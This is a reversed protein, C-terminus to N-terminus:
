PWDNKYCCRLTRTDGYVDGKNDFLVGIMYESRNPCIGLIENGPTLVVHFVRYRRWDPMMNYLKATHREILEKIRIEGNMRYVARYFREDEFSGNGQIKESVRLSVFGTGEDYYM